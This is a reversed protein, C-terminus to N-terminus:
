LYFVLPMGADRVVPGFIVQSWCSHTVIADFSQRQLLGQLKRRARLVLLPQRIQVNGLWAISAGLGRLAGSFRGEFCLAFSLELKPCLHANSVQTILTTEIGGYLNGSHVHLVRM